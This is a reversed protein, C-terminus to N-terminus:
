CDYLYGALLEFDLFVLRQVDGSDRTIGAVFHLKAFYKERMAVVLQGGSFIYLGNDLRLDDFMHLAILHNGELHFPSLSKTLFVPVPCM